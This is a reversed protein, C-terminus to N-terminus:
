ASIVESIVSGNDTAQTPSGFSTQFEQDPTTGLLHLITASVDAVRYSSGEVSTGGRSTHGVTQGGSICGGGLVVPTVAPFHDRGNQGNITPTRGFDGMWVLLTDDWLGNAVLDDILACWPGDIMSTLEGVQAFNNVHTDWGDLQVEVFPVDQELLRRALLCRRGFEHDGYRQRTEATERELDLTERFSTSVLTEIGAMM